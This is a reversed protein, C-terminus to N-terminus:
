GFKIDEPLQEPTKGELLQELFRRIRGAPPPCGPIHFDVPIVEHVPRVFPTLPPLVPADSPFQQLTTALEIYARTLVQSANDRGLANRMSPVNATVACDGFAVVIRTKKRLMHALEIHEENCIAGEILVVDVNDPYHKSDVLPSYVVEVKGALPILFEDLDLFSMHCGACGGFWLTAFKLRDM